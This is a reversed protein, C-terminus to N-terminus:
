RGHASTRTPFPLPPPRDSPSSPNQPVPRITRTAAAHARVSGASPGLWDQTTPIDDALESMSPTYSAIERQVAVALAHDLDPLLRDTIRAAARVPDGPVAIADPGIDEHDWTSGLKPPILGAVIFANRHWGPRALVVLDRDDPGQLRTAHEHAGHMLSGYALGLDWLQEDVYTKSPRDTLDFLSTAWQGPLHDALADTFQTLQAPSTRPM